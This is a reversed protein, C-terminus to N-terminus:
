IVAQRRDGVGKPRALRTLSVEPPMQSVARSKPCPLRTWGSRTMDRSKLWSLRIGSRMGGWAAEGGRGVGGVGKKGLLM